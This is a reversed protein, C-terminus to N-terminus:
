TIILHRAMIQLIIAGALLLMQADDPTALVSSTRGKPDASNKQRLGVYFNDTQAMYMTGIDQWSRHGAAIGSIPSNYGLHLLSLPKTVPQSGDRSIGIRTLRNGPLPNLLSGTYAQLQAGSALHSFMLRNGGDTQVFIPSDWLTGFINNTGNLNTNGARSWFDRANTGNQSPASPSNNTPGQQAFLSITFLSTGLILNLTKM